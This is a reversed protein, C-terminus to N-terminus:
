FDSIVKILVACNSNHGVAVLGNTLVNTKLPFNESYNCLKDRIYNIAVIKDNNSAILAERCLAFGAATDNRLSRILDKSVESSM